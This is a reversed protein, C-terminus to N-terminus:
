SAPAPQDPPVKIPLQLRDGNRVLNLYVIEGPQVDRISDEFEPLSSVRNGDIGVILDYSDGANTSELVPMLLMAFAAPPFIFGAGIAAAEIASRVRHQYSKLGAKAAPGNANVSLVLLGDAEEGDKLRRHDPRVIFGLSSSDDEDNLM